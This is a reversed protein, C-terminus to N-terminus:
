FGFVVRSIVLIEFFFCLSSFVPRKPKQSHSKGCAVLETLGSSSRKCTTKRTLDSTQSINCFFYKWSFVDVQYWASRCKVQPCHFSVEASQLNGIASPTFKLPVELVSGAALLIQKSNDLELSFNNTNSCHPTLVLSEDTPNRLRIMQYTSSLFFFRFESPQSELLKLLSFQSKLCQVIHNPKSKFGWM